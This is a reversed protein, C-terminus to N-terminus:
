TGTRYREYTKDLDNFKPVLKFFEDPDQSNVKDKVQVVKRLRPWVLEIYVIELGFHSQSDSDPVFDM